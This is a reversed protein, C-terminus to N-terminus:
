KKGQLSTNKYVPFDVHHYTPTCGPVFRRVYNLVADCGGKLWIDIDGAVRLSPDPYYQAVGQGKLVANRFGENIFKDSVAVSKRTLEKNNVRIAMVTQFWKLILSSSPRQHQPLREIGAFAIGQLAQKCSLEFLSDWQLANPVSPLESVKGIGCKVLAIFLPLIDTNAHSATAGNTMDLDNQDKVSAFKCNNGSNIM